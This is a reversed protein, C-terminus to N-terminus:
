INNRNVTYLDGSYSIRPNSKIFFLSTSIPYGSAM